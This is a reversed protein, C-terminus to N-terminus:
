IGYLVKAYETIAFGPLSERELRSHHLEQQPQEARIILRLDTHANRLKRRIANKVSNGIMPMRWRRNFDEVERSYGEIEQELVADTESKWILLKNKIAEGDALEPMAEVEQILSSLKDMCNQIRQLDAM